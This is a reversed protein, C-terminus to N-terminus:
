LSGMCIFNRRSSRDEPLNKSYSIEKSRSKRYLDEQFSINESDRRLAKTMKAISPDAKLNQSTQAILMKFVQRGDCFDNFTKPFPNPPYGKKLLTEVSFLRNLSIEKRM